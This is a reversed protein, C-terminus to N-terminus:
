YTSEILDRLLPDDFYTLLQEQLQQAYADDVGLPSEQAQWLNLIKQAYEHAWETRSIKTSTTM